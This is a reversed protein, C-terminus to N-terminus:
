KKLIGMLSLYLVIYRAPDMLHNNMDEPEEEVIGYRDVKRSYNQQESAINKSSRTYYVKLGSLINIGDIISGPGKFAPICNDYGIDNLAIIKLMRNNDCVMDVKKNINLQAIRWKMLGEEVQNISQWTTADEKSLRERIENESDYNLEHLYLGGDYYKAELVGWPDVTGWDIGVYKKATIAHYQEDPIEDWFFIRNPQTGIIGRGYVDWKNKWYKSKINAEFDPKPLDPDYYAMTRYREIENREETSLYENDKYTLIIFEADNRTIVEKHAWFESNPNFDIIIRKARSTLERYTEFSIKNAENVFMIDSRLGKGIDEKDLGIFKIFSGNGFRFLTDSMQIHNAYGMDRLIAIFDKIVTIRMKSLEASAVFIQKNSNALAHNLLILLISFTKAAGQGGQIVWIRKNLRAIKQLARTQKIM